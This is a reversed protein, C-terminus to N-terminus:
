CLTGADPCQTLFQMWLSYVPSLYQELRTEDQAVAPPRIPVAANPHCSFGAGTTAAM